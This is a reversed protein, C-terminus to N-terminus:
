PRALDKSGCSHDGSAMAGILLLQTGLAGCVVPINAVEGVIKALAGSGQDQLCLTSASLHVDSNSPHGEERGTGGEVVTVLGAVLACREIRGEGGCVSAFM